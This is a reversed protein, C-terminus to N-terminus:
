IFVRVEQGQETTKKKDKKMMSQQKRIFSPLLNTHCFLLMDTIVVRPWSSMIWPVYIVQIVQM